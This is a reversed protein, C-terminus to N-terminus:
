DRYVEAVDITIGVSQLTFSGKKHVEAPKLGSDPRFITVSPKKPDPWVVIYEKLSPIPLFAALKEYYDRKWDKSAVEIILTPREKFFTNKDRKDCVVMIDPYYFLIKDDSDVRLKMDSKFVRCRKGRLHGHLLAALNMAVVEHQEEAGAMATVVGNSFEHKLESKKEFALYRTENIHGSYLEGEKLDHLAASM